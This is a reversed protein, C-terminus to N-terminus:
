SYIGKEINICFNNLVGFQEMKNSYKYVVVLRRIRCFCNDIFRGGFLFRIMMFDFGNIIFGVKIYM